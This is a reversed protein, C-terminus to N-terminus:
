GLTGPAVTSLGGGKKRHFANRPPGASNPECPTWPTSGRRAPLYGAALATMILLAAVATLTLPDDARVGYLLVAILRTLALAGALGVAVGVGITATAQRMVLDLVDRRQAGLAMRIGIESTRPAVTQAMVGFIGIATMLVALAAFTSMLWASVRTRWMADAMRDRMTKIESLPLNPDLAHVESAIAAALAQSTQNSRVLLRMRPQYSQALPVYVDPRAATEISRYRVDSVVGVVVGGNDGYGGQGVAV